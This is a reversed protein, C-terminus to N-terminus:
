GDGDDLSISGAAVAEIVAAMAASVDEVARVTPLDIKISGARIPM